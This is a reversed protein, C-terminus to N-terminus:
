DKRGEEVPLPIRIEAKTIASGKPQGIREESDIDPEIQETEGKIFEQLAAQCCQRQDRGQGDQREVHVEPYHPGAAASRRLTSSRLGHRM